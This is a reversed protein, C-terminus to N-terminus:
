ESLSKMYAYIGDFYADNQGGWDFPTMVNPFGEAVKAGPQMVSERVYNEDVVYKTGDTATKESGWLGLWSPGGGTPITGDISHCSVCNNDYIVKGREVLDKIKEIDGDREVAAIWEAETEWVYVMATMISHDRGCYETCYLMFGQEPDGTAETHTMTPRFWLKNYRGPVCDQKVRFAPIFLSHLVDRDPTTMILQYNRDKIVHLRQPVVFRKGAPLAGGEYTFTWNWQKASVQIETVDETPPTVMILYWYTSIGFIGMLLILPIISWTLELKTNHTSTVEEKHGPRKRYKVMFYLTVGCIGVFFLICLWLIFDYTFDSGAAVSSAEPPFWFSGGAEGLPLLSGLALDPMM